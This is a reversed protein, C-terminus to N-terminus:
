NLQTSLIQLRLKQSELNIQNLKMEQETNLMNIKDYLLSIYDLMNEEKLRQLMKSKEYTQDYKAKSSSYVALSKNIANVLNHVNQEFSEKLKQQELKLKHLELQKKKISYRSKFGDFLTMSVSIGYNFEEPEIHTLTRTLTKEDTKNWSFKSYFKIKPYYSKQATKIELLQKKIKSEHSKYMTSEYFSIEQTTQVNSFDLPVTDEDYVEKTYSSLQKLIADYDKKQLKLSDVSSMYNMASNVFDIKSIKSEEYLRKRSQYIEYQLENVAELTQIQYYKMLINSYLGLISTSLSQYKQLIDLKDQYLNQKFAEKKYESVGFDYLEYSLNLYAMTEFSSHTENDDIAGYLYSNESNLSFSIKPYDNSNLEDYSALAISQKVELIQLDLSHNVTKQLVDEFNISLAWLSLPLCVILQVIRIM